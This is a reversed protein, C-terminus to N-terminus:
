QPHRENTGLVKSYTLILRRLRDFTLRSGYRPSGIITGHAPGGWGPDITNLYPLLGAVRIGDGSIIFKSRNGTGLTRSHVVAVNAGIRYLAGPAGIAETEAFGVVLRDAHVLDAKRAVDRLEGQRKSKEALYPMWETRPPLSSFPDLGTDAIQRLVAVGTIFQLVPTSLHVMRIGSILHSVNPFAPLLCSRQQDVIETFELLARYPVPRGRALFAQASAPPLPLCTDHHDFNNKDVLGSGGAELCLVQADALEEPLAGNLRYIIDDATTVDFITGALCTDLDAQQFVVKM